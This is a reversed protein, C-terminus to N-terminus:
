FGLNGFIPVAVMVLIGLMMGAIPIMLKSSAAEGKQRAYQKKEEWSMSSQKALYDALERNGKSINQVLTSAFKKVETNMCRNGFALIAETESAGNQMALVANRMECYVTSEGTLSIREWAERLVMGANVLLTLKSLVEPLDRAIEDDRVKMEDTIKMDYYWWACVAAGLGVVFSLASQLLPYLLFCFPICLLAVSIKQAYSLRTYYEAYLDGYIAVCQQARKKATRMKLLFDLKDVVLFGLPYVSKLPHESADLNVILADYRKVAASCLMLYAVACVTGVVAFAFSIVMM